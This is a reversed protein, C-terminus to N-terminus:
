FRPGYELEGAPSEEWDKGAFPHAQYWQTAAALLRQYDDEHNRVELAFQWAEGEQGEFPGARPLGLAVLLHNGPHKLHVHGVEHLFRLVITEPVSAAHLPPAVYTGWGSGRTNVYIDDGDRVSANCRERDDVFYTARVGHRAAFAQFVDPAPEMAAGALRGPLTM